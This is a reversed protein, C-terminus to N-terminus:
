KAVFNRQNIALSVYLLDNIYIVPKGFGVEGFISVYPVQDGYVIKEGQPLDLWLGELFNPYLKLLTDATHEVM